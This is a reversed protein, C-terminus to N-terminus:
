GRTDAQLSAYHVAVFPKTINDIETKIFIPDSILIHVQNRNEDSLSEYHVAIFHPIITDM